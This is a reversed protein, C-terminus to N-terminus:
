SLRDKDLIRYYVVWSPSVRVPSGMYEKPSWNTTQLRLTGKGVQYTGTIYLMYPGYATHQTDTQSFTGNAMLSTETVRPGGFGSETARWGGVLPAAGDARVTRPASILLVTLAVVCIIDPRIILDKLSIFLTKM